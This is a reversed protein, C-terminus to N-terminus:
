IIRFGFILASIGMGGELPEHYDMAGIVQTAIYGCPHLCHKNPDKVFSANIYDGQQGALMVRNTDFPMIDSYRNKRSNAPLRGQCPGDHCDDEDLICSFQQSLQEFTAQQKLLEHATHCVARCHHTTAVEIQTLPPQQAIAAAALHSNAAPQGAAAAAPPPTAAQLAGAPPRSQHQQGLPVLAPINVYFDSRASGNKQAPSALMAGDDAMSSLALGINPRAQQCSASLLPHLIYGSVVSGRIGAGPLPGGRRDHAHDIDSSLSGCSPGAHSGSLYRESPNQLLM